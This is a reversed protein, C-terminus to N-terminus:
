KGLLTLVATVRRHVSADDSLGLKAFLRQTHKEIAGTSLFLRESIAANTLGEGMLELVERERPTLDDLPSRRRSTIVQAVVDPDIAVGGAAVREILELFSRIDFVRDKLLYGTAEAGSEILETAYGVVVYQRLLVIPAQPWAARIEKAAGLGEDSHAPPMRIDSIVLAPRLELARAVLETGAAATGVVEHEVDEQLLRLGERLLASADAILVRVPDGGGGPHRRGRPLAREPPGRALRGTGRARSARRRDADGRRRTRRGRDEGACGRRDAGGGGRCVGGRLAERCQNAGGLRSLLRRDRCARAPGAGPGGGDHAAPLDGRTRRAGGAPRPGGPDAPRDRALASAARRPHSGAARAGRAARGTGARSGERHPVRDPRPGHLRARAAAAPRRAPGARPPAAGRVGGLPGRGPVGRHAADAAAGRAALEAARPRGGSSARDAGTGRPRRHVPLVPGRSVPAPCRGPARLTRARRAPHGARRDGGAATRERPDADGGARRGHRDGRADLHDRAPLQDPRAPLEGAGVALGALAASRHAPHADTAGVRRRRAAAEAAAHAPAHRPDRVAPGARGVRLRPRRAGRGGPDAARGVGGGDGCGGL